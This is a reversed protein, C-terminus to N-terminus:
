PAAVGARPDNLVTEWAVQKFITELNAPVENGGPLEAPDRRYVTAYHVLANLYVLLHSPHIDDVVGGHVTTTNAPYDIYPDLFLDLTSMQGGVAADAYSWDDGPNAAEMRDMLAVLAQGTPVIYVDLMGGCVGPDAGGGFWTYDSGPDPTLAPDAAEDAIAEWTARMNLQYQKFDWPDVDDYYNTFNPDTAQLHHWSEYLFLEANPNAALAACYFHRAYFGSYWWDYSSQINVGETVVIVDFTGYAPDASNVLPQIKEQSGGNWADSVGGWNWGIPAGPTTHRYSDYSHGAGTVLTGLLQDLPEDTAVHPDEGTILSHGVWYVKASTKPPNTTVDPGVTSDPQTGDPEADPTTVVDPVADPQAVMDPEADPQAVMDPAADPQATVDPTADPTPVGDPAADPQAVSDPQVVADGITEASADAVADPTGSPEDEPCAAVVLSAVCLAILRPANM